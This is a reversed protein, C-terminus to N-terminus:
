PKSYIVIIPEKCQSCTSLRAEIAAIQGCQSCVCMGFGRLVDSTRYVGGKLDIEHGIFGSLYTHHKPM